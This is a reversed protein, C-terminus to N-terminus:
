HSDRKGPPSVRDAGGRGVAAAPRAGPLGRSRRPPAPAPPPGRGGRRPPAQHADSGGLLGPDALFAGREEGGRTLRARQIFPIRINALAEAPAGEQAGPLAVRHFPPPRASALM